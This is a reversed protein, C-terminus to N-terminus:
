VTNKIGYLTFTSHENINGGALIDCTISTIASTGTWLNASLARIAETANNETVSDFTVAKTTSSTYNPIYLSGNSFTSATANPDCSYHFVLGTGSNSGTDVGTGRGAILRSSYNNGADSNFRTRINAWGNAENTNNRVSFLMLLDTYTQPISTFSISSVGGSGVTITTLAVYTIAM